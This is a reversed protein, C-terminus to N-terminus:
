KKQFFLCFIDAPYRIINQCYLHCENNFTSFNYVTKATYMNFMSVFFQEYLKLIEMHINSDIGM